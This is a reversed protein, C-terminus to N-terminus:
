WEGNRLRISARGVGVVVTWWVLLLFV